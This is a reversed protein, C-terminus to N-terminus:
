YVNSDKKVSGSHLMYSRDWSIINQEEKVQSAGAEAIWM